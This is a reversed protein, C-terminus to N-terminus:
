LHTAPHIIDKWTTREETYNIPKCQTYHEITDAICRQRYSVSGDENLPLSPASNVEIVYSVGDADVMIDVGAIGLGTLAAARLAKNCGDIPWESWKVNTFYGGQAVNWAIADPNAPHKRAVAAVKGFTTYVRYEAVKNIYKGAYWQVLGTSQIVETLEKADNVLWLKKGQAHFKPRLIAPFVDGEPADYESFISPPVINPNHNQLMYRSKAKDAALHIASVSNVVPTPPVTSTCGWRIIVARDLIGQPIKDLYDNRVFGAHKGYYFKNYMDSPKIGEIHAVMGKVTPLGLKRRRVFLAFNKM